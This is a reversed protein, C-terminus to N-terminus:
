TPQELRWSDLTRVGSGFAAVSGTAAASPAVMATIATQNNFICSVFAGDVLCHVRVAALAGADTVAGANAFGAADSSGLLPGALYLGDRRPSPPATPALPQHPCLWPMAACSNSQRGDIFVIQSDFDVGVETGEGGGAGALVRVGARGRSGSLRVIVELQLGGDVELGNTSDCPTGASASSHTGDVRLSQLEPVFAQRLSGDVPDLSLDRPLSQAAFTGNGVWGIIM